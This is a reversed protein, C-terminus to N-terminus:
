GAAWPSSIMGDIVTRARCSGVVGLERLVSEGEGRLWFGLSMKTGNGCGRARWNFAGVGELRGRCWSWREGASPSYFSAGVTCVVVGSWENGEGRVGSERHVALLAPM